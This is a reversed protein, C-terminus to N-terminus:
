LSDITRNRPFLLRCIVSENYISLDGVAELELELEEGVAVGSDAQDAALGGALGTVELHEERREADEIGAKRDEEVPQSPDHHVELGQHTGELATHHVGQSTDQVELRTEEQVKGERHTDEQGEQDTGLVVEFGAVLVPEL